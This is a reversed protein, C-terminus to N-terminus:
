GCWNGCSICAIPYFHPNSIFYWGSPATARSSNQVIWIQQPSTHRQYKPVTAYLLFLKTSLMRKECAHLGEIGHNFASSINDWPVWPIVLYFKTKGSAHVQNWLTPKPTLLHRSPPGRSYNHFKKRRQAKLRLIVFNSSSVRALAMWFVIQVTSIHSFWVLSYSRAAIRPQLWSVSKRPRASLAKIVECM